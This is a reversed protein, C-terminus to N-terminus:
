LALRRQLKQNKGLESDIVPLLHGVLTGDDLYIGKGSNAAIVALYKEMNGTNLRSSLINELRNYFQSLPLIAEAGAEGGAMLSSGNMGFITPNLMIGGEKYWDINLHPVSPPNLSLTGSISFHPLKIHPLELKLGSFFGKISDIVSKVKEKAAEIPTTIANKINNWVTTATDKIGNFIDSVTTKVATFVTSIKTKIGDVINSVTTKISNWTNVFFDKIGTWINVFFTKIATWAQEWSSGFWGLVADLVGKMTELITSLVSLIGEWLNTFINKVAEWAASWDGHFVAIFFDVVNLIHDLVTSLVTSIFSFAGEFIPALFDCFGNWVAKIVETINKFEFGLSNLRDVIGQCFGSITEKIKAWTALINERFGDNTDWLHKFAAVLVAIVAAVALVPGAVAGIASGLSTISGTSGAIKVGLKGIGKALSSFGKMASGIGSISKGLIVLFPGLAAVLLGIKLVVQRTGEDMSNLKDVFDQIKSVINRIAPMLMEGFSIALEELQSKLITLQGGLNDQMIAAMEEATGDCNAIANNLKDIDGPAANMVALFGSMANKGVLTEAAAAAESETMQSFYGRLDSLIDGLERMSGDANATAITVEVFAAGSLELEGQLKTMMTRMATGAQTAKIGSNAMLGVAEAVDEASYGLAGAVPACYKFTEGMMSVNTNANSSAAALIDAFHGSDQATLGFATLADTVIDSTTALDEGSAAALSMIGDIGSLMDETKWGAMAMYNMASAAESASFKTKEGMERAKDRLAQLDDGTAGSVAAVQAMASDFDAATKVAATGLGIVALSAPMVKNGVGTIKDGVAEFKGGVEEIKALTANTTVAEEQLRRLEQETEIIERQLADYKDQGLDGNELQEKAQRQAEKLTNLKESTAGIADKLDKQKQALLQTNSPDLKLLREVDKLESQTTKITSNVQKLAKELGTTDGGIEVTIGKIRGAM